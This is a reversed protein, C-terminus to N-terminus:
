SVCNIKCHYRNRNNKGHRGFKNCPNNRHLRSNPQTYARNSTGSVIEDLSSGIDIYLNNNNTIWMLYIIIEAVPGASIFFIYRDDSYYNALNIYKQKYFTQNLEYKNIHDHPIYIIDYTWESIKCDFKDYKLKDNIMLIIKYKNPNYNILINKLYSRWRNYNYDCFLVAYSLYQIKLNPIHYLLKNVIHTRRRCPFGFYFNKFILQHNIKYANNIGQLVQVLDLGTKSWIGDTKNWSWDDQTTEIKKGAMLRWEGDGWRTFAFPILCNIKNIIWNFEISDDYPAIDRDNTFNWLFYKSSDICSLPINNIINPWIGKEKYICSTNSIIMHNNNNNNKNFSEKEVSIEMEMNNYNNNSEFEFLIFYLIIILITLSIKCFIWIFKNNM